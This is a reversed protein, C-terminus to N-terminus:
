VVSCFCRVELAELQGNASLVEEAEARKAAAADASAAIRRNETDLVELAARENAERKNRRARRGATQGATQCAPPCAPPCAATCCRELAAAYSGTFRSPTAVKPNPRM